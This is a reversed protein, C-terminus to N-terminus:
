TLLDTFVIDGVTKVVHIFKMKIQLIACPTHWKKPQKWELFQLSLRNLDQSVSQPMPWSHSDGYVLQLQETYYVGMAFHCGSIVKSGIM